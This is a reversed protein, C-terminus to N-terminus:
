KLISDVELKLEPLVSSEVTEGHGFIKAFQYIGLTPQKHMEVVDNPLNVIWVEPIGAEAYLPLKTERDYKLTKDSVEIVILTGAPRPHRRGDYKTLDALVIDPEPEEYETLRPPNQVRV